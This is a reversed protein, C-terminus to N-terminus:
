LFIGGPFTILAQSRFVIETDPGEFSLCRFGLRRSMLWKKQLLKLALLRLAKNFQLGGEANLGGGEEALM